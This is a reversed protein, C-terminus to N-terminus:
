IRVRGGPLRGQGGSGLNNPMRDIGRNVGQIEM